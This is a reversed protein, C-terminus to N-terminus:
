VVPRARHRRVLAGVGIVGALLWVTTAAEPVASAAGLSLTGTVTPTPLFQGSGPDFDPRDYRSMAVFTDAGAGSSYTGGTYYGGHDFSWNFSTVQGGSVTLSGGNPTNTLSHWGLPATETPSSVFAFYFQGALSTNSAFGPTGFTGDITASDYRYWGVFTQGVSYLPDNSSTVTQIITGTFTLGFAAPALALLCASFTLVSKM